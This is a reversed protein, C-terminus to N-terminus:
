IFFIFLAKMRNWEFYVHEFATNFINQNLHYVGHSVSKNPMVWITVVRSFERKHGDYLQAAMRHIFKLNGHGRLSDGRKLEPGAHRSM